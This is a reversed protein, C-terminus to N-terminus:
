IQENVAQLRERQKRKATTLQGRSATSPTRTAPGCLVRVLSHTKEPLLQIDPNEEMVRNIEEEDFPVIDSLRMLTELFDLYFM